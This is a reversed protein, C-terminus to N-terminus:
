RDQAAQKHRALPPMHNSYLRDILKSFYGWYVLRRRQEFKFSYFAARHYGAEIAAVDGPVGAGQQQAPDVSAEPQHTSKATHKM